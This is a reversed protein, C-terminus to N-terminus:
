RARCHTFDPQDPKPWTPWPWARGLRPVADPRRHARAQHRGTRGDTRSLAARRRKFLPVYNEEKTKHPHRAGHEPPGEPSLACVNFTAFIDVERQLWEWGILAGTALSPLGMEVAKARFAQLEEYTATPTERDSSRLGMQAFPNIHPLKGPHRRAVINWARRCTKMAHNVTTRREGIVNGDADKVPLLAEYLADTIGTTIATVRAQGLRRGDKLVHGGVLKFGNEHNRRTKPDLKTYRRDARYEAFLWDLTGAAAVAPSSAAATDGKLWADFAPLLITEARLVAADYDTGLAENRM